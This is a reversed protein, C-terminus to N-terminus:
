IEGAYLDGSYFWAAAMNTIIEDLDALIKEMSNAEQWTLRDMGPPASPTSPYVAVADRLLRINRLYRDLDSKRPIDGASWAERYIHANGNGLNAGDEGQADPNLSWSYAKYSSGSWGGGYSRVDDAAGGGGYGGQGRSGGREYYVGALDYNIYQNIGLVGSTTGATAPSKSSTSRATFRNPSKFLAGVGDYGDGRGNKYSEDWAGGGGAAVLLVEYNKGGKAFQWKSETISPIEKFIFTGGGGGGSAGDKVTGTSGSGEGGVIVHLVDGQTLAFAAHLRAGKGGVSGYDKNFTNGKGGSAGSVAIRYVGDMPVTFLQEAGTFAFEQAAQGAELAVPAAYGCAHLRQAIYGAAAEVRNLDSANYFGKKTLNAVDEGTRDFILEDIVSM